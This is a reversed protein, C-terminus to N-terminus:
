QKKTNKKDKSSQYMLFFFLVGFFYGYNNGLQGWLSQNQTLFSESDKGCTFDRQAPKSVVGELECADYLEETVSVQSSEDFLFSPILTRM